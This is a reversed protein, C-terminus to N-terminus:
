RVVSEAVPRTRLSTSDEIFSAQLIFATVARGQEVVTTASVTVVNELWPPAELQRMFRTYGQVDVTRGTIQVTVDAAATSDISIPPPVTSLDILWTYDPLALSVEDLIHPWIFREGDVGRITRIQGLVSDRTAEERRKSELFDQYRQHESRAAELEPELRRLQSASRYWTFGLFGIAAVWSLIVLAKLPDKFRSGLGRVADFNFRFAPRAVGRKAGPRLNVNIMM